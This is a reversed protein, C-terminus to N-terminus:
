NVISRLGLFALVSRMIIRLDLGFSQHRVYYLDYELQRITDFANRSERNLQEWGMLGPKVVTRALYVPLERQVRQQHEVEMPRPGVLSLHGSLIAFSQPLRDIGLRRIFVGTRTPAPADVFPWHPGGNGSRATRFRLLTFPRGLWGVRRERVFVSGARELTLGFAVPLLALSFAAFACVGIVLDLTRKSARTWPSQHALRDLATDWAGNDDVVPIRHTLEDHLAHANTVRIGASALRLLAECLLLSPAQIALVLDTPAHHSVIKALDCTMGLHKGPVTEAPTDIVTGLWEWSSPAVQQFSEHLRRAPGSDGILVIRRTSANTM